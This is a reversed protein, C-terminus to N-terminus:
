KPFGLHFYYETFEILAEMQISIGALILIM